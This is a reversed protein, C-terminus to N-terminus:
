NRRRNGVKKSIFSIQCIFPHTKAATIRNQGFHYRIIGCIFSWYQLTSFTGGVYGCCPLLCALRFCLLEIMNWRYARVLYTLDNSCNSPIYTKISYCNYLISDLMQSRELQLKSERDLSFADWILHWM